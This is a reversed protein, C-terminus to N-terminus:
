VQPSRQYRHTDVNASQSFVDGLDVSRSAPSERGMFYWMGRNKGETRVARADILRKMSPRMAFTTPDLSAAIEEGRQGQHAKVSALLRDGLDKSLAHRERPATTAKTRAVGDRAPTM